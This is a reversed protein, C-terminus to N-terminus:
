FKSTRTIKYTQKAFENKVDAFSSVSLIAWKNMKQQPSLKSKNKTINTDTNTFQSGKHEPSSIATLWKKNQLNFKIKKHASPFQARSKSLWSLLSCPTFKSICLVTFMCTSVNSRLLVNLTINNM